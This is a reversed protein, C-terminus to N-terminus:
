VKVIPQSAGNRKLSDRIEKLVTLQQANIQAGVSDAVNMQDPMNIAPVPAPATPALSAPAATKTPTSTRAPASAGATPSGSPNDTSTSSTVPANDNTSAPGSSTVPSSMPSANATPPPTGANSPASSKEAQDLLAGTAGPKVVKTETGTGMKDAPVNKDAAEPVDPSQNNMANQDGAQASADDANDGGPINLSGSRLKNLYDNYFARREDTAPVANGGNIGRVATDFDGTKAISKMAASNKLFWVASEAMVNPDESVLEPHSVVDIGSAKKFAEYNSKGTLQFLGRGRYDWGDEPKTNGLAPGKPARGYVYMAREVPSMAAVKQATAADPINKFYKLLTPASWNTNEVTSQYGGTEKRAMALALALTKNDRFGAKVLHNLMLQDGQELSMKIGKDSGAKKIFEPNFSQNANGMFQGASGAPGGPASMTANPYYGGAASSGGSSRLPGGGSAFGTAGKGYVADMISKTQADSGVGNTATPTSTSTAESKAKELEPDKIAAEKAKSDLIKMYKDARDPYTGSDSDPFPSANVSWIPQQTDNVTVILGLLKRAIIAKNTDSLSRWTKGPIGGRLQVTQKCYEMLTPLFRDRFWIMWNNKSIINRDVVHFSAKFLELLQNSKGTFRADKGTVMIFSETYRELRLVAEVRWPVSKDNGYVALRALTFADLNGDKGYMDSIDIKTVDAPSTIDDVAQASAGAAKQDMGPTIAIEPMSTTDGSQSNDQKAQASADATMSEPTKEPPAPMEKKLQDFLKAVADRTQEPGMTAEKDDIRVDISYPPPNYSAIGRQAQEVVKVADYSKSNDFEVIDGMRETAVAVNYIMFVPKFRAMFWTGIASKDNFKSIGSNAFDDVLKGTPTNPKLSAKNDKIVVYQYLQNELAMIRRALNSSTDHVGYMALRIKRQTTIKNAAKEVGPANNIVPKGDLASQAADAKRRDTYFTGDSTWFLGINDLKEYGDPGLVGQLASKALSGQPLWDTVTNVVKDTATQHRGTVPDADGIDLDETGTEYDAPDNNFIEDVAMGGLAAYASGKAFRGLKGGRRRGAGRNGARNRRRAGQGRQEPEPGIGGGAGRRGGGLLGGALKTFGWKMLKFIPSSIGMVGSFLATGIKALRGTSKLLSGFVLSGITGIPNKFLKVGFGGLALFMDKIKGFFGKSEGKEEEGGMGKTNKAIEIIAENVKHKEESAAEKKKWELSNLRLGAGDSGGTMKSRIAETLNDTEMPIGFHQSMMRYILDLRHEVGSNGSGKSGGVGGAASGPATAQSSYGFRGLLSNLGAKALGAAGGVVGAVGAGMNRVAMGSATVLGSKYEEESVLQNGQDDYVPGNIENWGTIPKFNGSEDRSYYEGAKFKAARLAPEKQGKIYIDQQYVLDKGTDIISRIRGLPDALNYAGVIGDRVRRLGNLAVARGDAGFIKGALERAGIVARTATDFIPGRIDNWTKIVRRTAADLYEGAKLKASKLLPEGKEDLIDEDDNPAATSTNGSGTRNRRQYHDVAAGLALGGAALAGSLLFNKSTAAAGVAGLIGGLVMPNRSMIFDMGRGMMGTPLKSKIKDLFSKKAQEEQREESPTGATGTTLKGAKALELLSGMLSEINKSTSFIGANSDKIETLAGTMTDFNVMSANQGPTAEPQPQNLTGLRENLQQLTENLGDMPNVTPSSNGSTRLGGVTPNKKGGKPLVGRLAPDNPNDMYQGIRDHFAQNNIKDIGNETYIVGIDRLMQENGTARLLDIREAVNPFNSKLNEASASANNLRERGEKTPMKSMQKMRQFSDSSNFTSVDQTTIGFHRMLAAHVEKQASPSMGKIDGLYYYPNFGMEADIDKAVQQAFAKRTSPSLFKDPDISDVLSLSAQAYRQFEGHPMLDAQVSVRRQSDTQFEGRMYNYSESEVNDKGTRMKELILNTKSILGPLVENLTINNLEKWIGPQNLDKVDRKKLTYQTGRTKNADGMLKNIAEKGRNSAANLATWAAKPLPKKGPPLESLYHEYDAYKMEDMPQYNQAMYNLMGTGSTSAYSIVHGVDTLKDIQEKIYGAQEPYTKSLKDIAKKGPGRTFFAPLQDVAVGAIMNGLINGVLGRSLSTDGAMDIGDSINNALSGLVGYAEKRNDASFRDRFMGTLGGMRKGVTNFVRQRMYAKSATFTSTKQYDSMGTYKTIKKLETVEAHIGAEMFKYFKASNVYSRATLNLQAQQIRADVNRQYNLMDRMAGEINVLQRNGAGISAQLASTAAVTMSNLSDGLSVFMGSQANMSTNLAGEVDDETTSDVRADFRDSRTESREWMSFDKSSFNGLGESLFGPLKDGMKKNIHSAINQLSKASEANEERFETALQGLRDNIFSAKDLANSFSSPLITRMSRFRAPSSGVTEDVVGSLFGTAFSRIFGKGKFPDMDFDMDFDMDGGFPDNDWDLGIDYDDAM